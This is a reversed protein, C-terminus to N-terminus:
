APPHYWHGVFIRYAVDIVLAFAGFFLLCCLAGFVLTVGFGTVACGLNLITGFFKKM